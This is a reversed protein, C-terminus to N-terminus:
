RHVGSLIPFSLHFSQWDLPWLGIGRESLTNSLTGFTTVGLLSAV